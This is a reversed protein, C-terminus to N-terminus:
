VNHLKIFDSLEKHFIYGLKILNILTLHKCKENPNELRKYHVQSINLYEAVNETSFPNLAGEAGNNEEKYKNFCEIRFKKMNMCVIKKCQYFDIKDLNDLIEYMEETVLLCWRLIIIVDILSNALIM